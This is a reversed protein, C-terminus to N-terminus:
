VDHWTSMDASLTRLSQLNVLVGLHDVDVTAYTVTDDTVLIAKQIGRHQQLTALIPKASERIVESIKYHFGHFDRLNHGINGLDGAYENVFAALIEKAIFSGFKPGDCVDLFIACFVKAHENTVVAMAVVDRTTTQIAGRTSFLSTGHAFEMYSVPAGTTKASFELIATLLSGILRPHSTTTANDSAAAWQLRVSVSPPALTPPGMMVLRLKWNLHEFTPEGSGFAKHPSSSVGEATAHSSALKLHRKWRKLLTIAVVDCHPISGLARQLQALAADWAATEDSPTTTDTMPYTLNQLALGSAGRLYAEMAAATPDQHFDLVVDFPTPVAYGKKVAVHDEVDVLAKYMAQIMPHSADLESCAVEHRGKTFAKIAQDFRRMHELEVGWNYYAIALVSTDSKNNSPAGGGAVREDAMAKTREYKLLEIACRAHEAARVHRGMQSLIACINLHTGAPNEVNAISSEIKLTKELYQIATHLKGHAFNNLTIGRLRKRHSDDVLHCTGPTTHQDALTLLDLADESEALSLARMAASNCLLIFEECMAQVEPANVGFGDMLQVLASEVDTSSRAFQGDIVWGDVQAQFLSFAEPTRAEVAADFAEGFRGM